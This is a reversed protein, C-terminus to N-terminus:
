VERYQIKNPIQTQILVHFGNMIESPNIAMAWAM